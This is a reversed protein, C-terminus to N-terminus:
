DADGAVPKSASSSALSLGAFGFRGSDDELLVVGVVGGADPHRQSDADRM